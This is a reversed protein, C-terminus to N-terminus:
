SVALKNVSLHKVLPLRSHDSEQVPNEVSEERRRRLAIRGDCGELSLYGSRLLRWVRICSCDEPGQPDGLAWSQQRISSGDGNSNLRWTNLQERETRDRHFRWAHTDDPRDGDGFALRTSGLKGDTDIRGNVIGEIDKGDTSNGVIDTGRDEADARETGCCDKGEIATGEITKGVKLMDGSDNGEGDNGEGDNGEGDNGEGDNGTKETGLMTKGENTNGLKLMEGREIGEKTKGVRLMGDTGTGDRDIGWALRDEAGRGTTVTGDTTIGDMTKGVKLKGDIATGDNTKGVRLIGEIGAGAGDGEAGETTIGDITM